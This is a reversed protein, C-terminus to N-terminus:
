KPGKMILADRVRRSGVLAARSPVALGMKEATDAAQDILTRVVGKNDAQGAAVRRATDILCSSEM